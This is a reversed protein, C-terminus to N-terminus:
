TATLSLMALTVALLGPLCNETRVKKGPPNVRVFFRHLWAAHEHAKPADCQYGSSVSSRFLCLRQEVLQRSSSALKRLLEPLKAINKAASRLAEDRTLLNGASHTIDRGLCDGGRPALFSPEPM